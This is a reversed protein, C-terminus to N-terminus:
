YNVIHDYDVFLRYKDVIARFDDAYQEFLQMNDSNQLLYSPHYTAMINENKGLWVGRWKSISLKPNAAITQLATRGLAILIKPKVELIEAMLYKNCMGIEEWTPTRNAFPKCKVVNTIYYDKEISFNCAKLFENLQQGAKGIFPKGYKDESYGPAEGVFMLKGYIGRGNVIKKRGVCLNCDFCNHIIM